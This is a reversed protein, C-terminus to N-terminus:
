IVSSTALQDGRTGGNKEEDVGVEAPGKRWSGFSPKLEKVGSNVKKEISRRAHWSNNRAVFRANELDEFIRRIRVRFM